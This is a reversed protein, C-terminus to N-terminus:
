KFHMCYIKGIPVAHLATKYYSTGWIKKHFYNLKPIDGNTYVVNHQRNMLDWGKFYICIHFYIISMNNKNRTFNCLMNEESIKTFIKKIKLLIDSFKKPNM